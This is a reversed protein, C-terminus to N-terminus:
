NRARYIEFMWTTVIGNYCGGFIVQRPFTLDNRVFFNNRLGWQLFSSKYNPRRTTNKPFSRRPTRTNGIFFQPWLEGDHLFANVPNARGNYIYVYRHIITM